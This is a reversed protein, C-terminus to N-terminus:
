HTCIGFEKTKRWLMNFVYDLFGGKTGEEEMVKVIAKQNDKFSEDM